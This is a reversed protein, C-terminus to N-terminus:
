QPDGSQILVVRFGWEKSRYSPDYWLRIASRSYEPRNNWCGGRRIRETGTLPGQPDTVANRPYDAYWDQCWEWVNGHMDYLGWRNPKKEGVPHTADKSNGEIWAYEGLEAEDEGFCYKTTTEARCAYEWEAETPLRYLRGAAKEVPLGSLKQCFSVTDGWSVNEAPHKSGKFRSSNREMVKEYQQQTVETEGLYFNKSITVRYQPANKLLTEEEIPEGMTFTGASILVLKMGISNTIEKSNQGISSTTTVVVLILGLLANRM